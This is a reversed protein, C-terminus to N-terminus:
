ALVVLSRCRICFGNPLEFSFDAKLRPNCDSTCCRDKFATSRSYQRASQGVLCTNCDQRTLLESPFFSVEDGRTHAAARGHSLKRQLHSPRATSGGIATLHGSTVGSIVALSLWPLGLLVRFRSATSPAAPVQETIIVAWGDPAHNSHQLYLSGAVLRPMLAPHGRGSTSHGVYQSQILGWDM